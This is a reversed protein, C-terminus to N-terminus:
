DDPPAAWLAYSLRSALDFPRLQSEEEPTIESLYIFSPSCLMLKVTDLAAQRPSAQESLRKQFFSRIRQKDPEQIPRRYAKKAFAFLQELARGAQFGQSGFVALEEKGGGQEEVPGHIKIEAFESTPCRGKGSCLRM